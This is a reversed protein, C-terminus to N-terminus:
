RTTHEGNAHALMLRVGRRIAAQIEFETVGQWRAISQITLGDVYFQEVADAAQPDHDLRRLWMLASDIVCKDDLGAPMGDNHRRPGKARPLRADAEDYSHRDLITEYNELLHYLQGITYRGYEPAPEAAM